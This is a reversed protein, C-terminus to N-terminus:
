SLGKDRLLKIIAKELTEPATHSLIESTRQMFHYGTKSFGESYNVRGTYPISKRGATVIAKTRGGTPRISDAMRGSRRPALGAAIVAGERAVSQMATKLDALDVGAAHLERLLKNLGEVKVADAM